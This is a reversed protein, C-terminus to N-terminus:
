PKPKEATVTAPKGKAINVYYQQILAAYEPPLKDSLAQKILERQRPPLHIFMGDGRVDGVHPPANNMQGDAVRYGNGRGENKERSRGPQQGKGQGPEKGKGQSPKQGQGKDQGQGKGESPKKGQGEGKGQGEKQGEGKEGAQAMASNLADMAQKLQTAAQGQAQNAPKAEGQQLKQGAQALQQGAQQLQPQVIGPAQAQAQALAAMAAQNAAQSQGMAKTAEMLAKQAQALEGANKAESPKPAGKPSEEASQGKKRAADQLQALARKQKALAEKLDGKQLAEAAERAPQKAAPAEVKDAQKSVEKQLKSLDPQETQPKKELQEAAKASDKAAQETRELAKAIQQAANEPDVEKQMAAQDAAEKGRKEDLAKAVAKQAEKLKDVANDANKAAPPIRKKDLNEKAADMQKAGEAVHKAAEPASKQLEKDLEKAQPTLDGQKKALNEADSAESKKEKDHAESAVKSEQQIMKDLRQEAAELKAIDDRRKEIDAVQETLAKKAEELKGLAQDQKKVSPSAQKDNLTKTAQDMAKAAGDLAKKTTPPAAAPQKPLEETRKALDEQKPAMYPLRQPQATKGAEDTKDRIDKQEKIIQEVKALTDKLNALPDAQAKEAEAILRDLEDKVARLKELAADQPDIARAIPPRRTAQNRLATQAQRMNKEIPHLQGALKSEHPHLLARTARTDFELSAERSSLGRAWQLNLEPMEEPRADPKEKEPPTQTGERVGEQDDIGREVKQRAERLSALRDGSGRLIRALEQIDGSTLWQMEAARRWRTRREASSGAARLQRSATMLNDLVSSSKVAAEMQRLREQQEPPLLPRLAGAQALLNSLDRHLFGEEGALREARLVFEQRKQTNSQSEDEWTLQANQLYHDLEDRALKDLREAAQDLGKIADFRALLGKLGLVIQEHREQVEMLERTRAEGETKGARELADILRVMQERSLGALTGAVQDLMEKEASRDLRNYELVRIMTQVRRVLRDTEARILKQREEQGGLDPAPEAARAAGCCSLGVLALLVGNAMGNVQTRIM